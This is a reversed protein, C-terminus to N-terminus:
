PRLKPKENSANIDHELAEYYPRFYDEIAQKIEEESKCKSLDITKSINAIHHAAQEVIPKSSKTSM